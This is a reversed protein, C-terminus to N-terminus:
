SKIVCDDIIIIYYLYFIQETNLSFVYIYLTQFIHNFILM